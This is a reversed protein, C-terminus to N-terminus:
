ATQVGNRQDCDGTVQWCPLFGDGYLAFIRRSSFKFFENEYVLKIIVTKNNQKIIYVTQYVM